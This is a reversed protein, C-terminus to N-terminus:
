KRSLKKVVAVEKRASELPLYSDLTCFPFFWNLSGQGNTVNGLYFLYSKGTQLWNRTCKNENAGPYRNDFQTAAVEKGPSGKFVEGPAITATCQDQRQETRIVTGIFATKASQLKQAVVADAQWEKRDPPVGECETALLTAPEVMWLAVLFLSSKRVNAGKRHVSHRLRAQATKSMASEHLVQDAADNRLISSLM